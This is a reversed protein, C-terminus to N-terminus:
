AEVEDPEDLNNPWAFKVLIAMTIACLVAYAAHYALGVPLFDFVLSKDKWNWIDQHLVFVAAVLMSLVWKM